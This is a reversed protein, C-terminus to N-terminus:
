VVELVAMAARLVYRNMFRTIPNRSTSQRVDNILHVAGMRLPLREYATASEEEKFSMVPRAMPSKENNWRVLVFEGTSLLPQVDSNAADIFRYTVRGVRYSRRLPEDNVARITISADASGIYELRATM